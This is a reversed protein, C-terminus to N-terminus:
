DDLRKRKLREEEFRRARNRLHARIMQEKAEQPADLENIKIIFPDPELADPIILEETEVLGEDILVDVLRKGSAEAYTRLHDVAKRAQVRSPQTGAPTPAPELTGSNITRQISGPKLQYAVEMAALTERGYNTRDGNEISTIMRYWSGEKGSHTEAVFTRRNAYRPDLQVRRHVLLDGLDRWAAENTSM